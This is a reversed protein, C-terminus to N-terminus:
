CNGLMKDTKAQIKEKLKLNKPPTIILIIQFFNGGHDPNANWIWSTFHIRIRIWSSYIHPFFSM